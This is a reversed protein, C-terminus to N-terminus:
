SRSASGFVAATAMMAAPSIPALTVPAEYVRLGFVPALRVALRQEDSGEQGQPSNHIAGDAPWPM